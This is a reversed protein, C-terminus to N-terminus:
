DIKVNYILMCYTKIKFYQKKSFFATNPKQDTFVTWDLIINYADSLMLVESEDLVLKDKIVEASYNKNNDLVNAGPMDINKEFLPNDNEDVFTLKMKHEVPIANEIDYVIEALRGNRIEKRMDDDIEFELTDTMTLEKIRIESSSIIKMTVNISDKDTAIGKGNSPNLIVEALVNVDEPMFSLFESINSNTNDYLREFKGNDILVNGLNQNGDKDTLFITEGSESIGEIRFNQFEATFVEDFESIYDAKLIMQANTFEIKNRLEKVDDTLPLKVNESIDRVKKSPLVGEVYYFDTQSLSIDINLLDSSSNEPKSDVFFFLLNKDEQDRANYRYDSLNFVNKYSGKSPITGQFGFVVGDKNKFKPMSIVFVVEESSTNSINVSLTGTKLHASDIEAGSNIAIGILSDGTLVPVNELFQGNLQNRIFESVGFTNNYDDSEITYVKKGSTSDIKINDDLKIIEELYYTTDIVPVNLEVDWTPAKIDDPIDLCSFMLIPIFLVLKYINRM